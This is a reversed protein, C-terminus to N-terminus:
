LCVFCHTMSHVFAISEVMKNYDLPKGKKSKTEEASKYTSRADDYQQVLDVTYEGYIGERVVKESVMTSSSYFPTVADAPPASFTSTAIALAAFAGVAAKQL